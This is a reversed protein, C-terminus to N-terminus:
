QTKGPELHRNENKQIAEKLKQRRYEQLEDAILMPGDEDILRQWEKEAELDGNDAAERLRGVNM